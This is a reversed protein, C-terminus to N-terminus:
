SGRVTLSKLPVINYQLLSRNADKSCACFDPMKLSEDEAGRDIYRHSCRPPAKCACMLGTQIEAIESVSDFQVASQGDAYMAKTNVMLMAKM